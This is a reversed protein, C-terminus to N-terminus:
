NTIYTKTMTRRIAPGVKMLRSKREVLCAINGIAADFRCFDQSVLFGSEPISSNLNVFHLRCVNSLKDLRGASPWGMGTLFAPGSIVARLRVTYPPSQHSGFTLFVTCTCVCYLCLVFVTCTEGWEHWMESWQPHGVGSHGNPRGYTPKRCPTSITPYPPGPWLM